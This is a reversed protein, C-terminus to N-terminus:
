HPISLSVLRPADAIVHRITPHTRKNFLNANFKLDDIDSERLSVFLTWTNVGQLVLSEVIPHPDYGASGMPLFAPSPIEAWRNMAMGLKRKDDLFATAAAAAELFDRSAAAAAATAAPAPAPAPASM